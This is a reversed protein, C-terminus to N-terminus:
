EDNKSKLYYKVGVSIVWIVFTGVIEIPLLIMSYETFFSYYVALVFLIIAWVIGVGILAYYIWKFADFIVTDKFDVNQTKHDKKSHYGSFYCLAFGILFAGLLVAWVGHDFGTHLNDFKYGVLPDFAWVLPFPWFTCLVILLKGTLMLLKRM